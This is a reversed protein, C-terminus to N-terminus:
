NRLAPKGVPEEGDFITVINSRALLDDLVKKEAAKQRDELIKAEIEKQVSQFEVSKPERHDVVKYVEFRDDLVQVSTMSGSPMDFLMDELNKDALSGRKIWGMDGRKQSSLVDSLESAVTGFEEKQRLRQVVKTMVDEAGERGGHDRFRVVIEAFRVEEDPTYEDLHEQYYKVLEERDIEKPVQAKSQVYGVVFQRRIFTEKMERRSFGQSELWIDLEEDSALQNDKMMKECVEKFAPELSERIVKRKDEQITAELAQVVLSDEAYERTRIRLSQMLILQRQEDTLNPDAEIKRRVGGLVDDVFVPKGNVTAVISTGTLPAVGIEHFSVPVIGDKKANAQQALREEEADAARNVLSRRPPASTFVPNEEKVSTGKCGVSMEILVLAVFVTLIRLNGSPLKSEFTSIESRISALPNM